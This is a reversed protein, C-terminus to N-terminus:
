SAHIELSKLSVEYPSHGQSQLYIKPEDIKAVVAIVDLNVSAALVKGNNHDTHNGAIETRGPASYIGVNHDEGYLDAFAELAGLYREHQAFLQDSGYLPLLVEDLKGDLLDNKLKKLNM